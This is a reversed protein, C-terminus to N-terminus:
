KKAQIGFQQLLLQNWERMRDEDWMPEKFSIHTCFKALWSRPVVVYDEERTAEYEELLKLTDDALCTSCDDVESAYPCGACGFDAQSSHCRIGAMVKEKDIM